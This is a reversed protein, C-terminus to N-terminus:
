PVVLSGRRRCLQHGFRVANCHRHRRFPGLRPVHDPGLALMSYPLLFTMGIDVTAAIASIMVSRQTSM